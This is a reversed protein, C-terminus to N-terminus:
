ITVMGRRLYFIESEKFEEMCYKREIYKCYVKGTMAEMLIKRARSGGVEMEEIPIDELELM